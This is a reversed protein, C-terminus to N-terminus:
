ENLAIKLGGFFTLPMGPRAGAPRRAAIYEEDFVNNINLFMRTNNYVEYEGALDVVFNADTGQGAPISGSGAQTRMEDVYKGGIHAEWKPFVVGASVFFQHEPIYPLEDGAKVNGWEAFTSTFSNQFEAQTFTYNFALPIQFTDINVFKAADSGISFEAGIVDVEGANFQDGINGLCGSSVTCQGLLNSYDSYFGVLETQVYDNNYRIGTEYNISEEVDDTTSSASPPAFGKHIGAFVSLNDTFAYGIGAGPVFADVSNETKTNANFNENALNINEYRAGLSFTWNHFAIEDMAYLAIANATAEANAQSGALGTNTLTM